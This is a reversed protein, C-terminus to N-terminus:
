PGGMVERRLRQWDVGWFFSARADLDRRGAPQGPDLDFTRFSVLQIASRPLSRDFFDPHPEVMPRLCFRDDFTVVDSLVTGIIRPSLCGPESAREPTLAALRAQSEAQLRLLLAVPHDPRATDARARAREIEGARDREWSARARAMDGGFSTQARLRITEEDRVRQGPSELRQVEAADREAQARAPPLATEIAGLQWRLLREVTAPRFLPRDHRTVIFQVGGYVPFGHMLHTVPVTEHMQGRADTITFRSNDLQIQNVDVWAYGIEGDFVSHGNRRDLWDAPWYGVGFGGVLAFDEALRRASGSNVFLPCVGIAPHITPQAKLFAGIRNIQARLAAAEAATASPNSGPRSSNHDPLWDCPGDVPFAAGQRRAGPPAVPWTAPRVQGPPALLVPPPPAPARRPSNAIDYRSADREPAAAPQAALPAAPAASLL